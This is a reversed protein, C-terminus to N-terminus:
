ELEEANEQEGEEEADGDSDEMQFSSKLNGVL